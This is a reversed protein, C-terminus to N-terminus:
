RQKLGNSKGLNKDTSQSAFLSNKSPPSHPHNNIIELNYSKTQM